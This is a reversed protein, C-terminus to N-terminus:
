KCGLPFTNNLSSCKGVSLTISSLSGLTIGRIVRWNFKVVIM